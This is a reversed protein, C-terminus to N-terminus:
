EADCSEELIKDTVMDQRVCCYDYGINYCYECIRDYGPDSICTFQRKTIEGVLGRKQVHEAARAALKAYVAIPADVAIPTAAATSTGVMLAAVTVIFSSIHM